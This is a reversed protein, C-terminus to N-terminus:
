VTTKDGTPQGSDKDLVTVVSGETLAPSKIPTVQSRLFLAGFLIIATTSVLDVSALQQADWDVVHLLVLMKTIAALFATLASLIASPERNM